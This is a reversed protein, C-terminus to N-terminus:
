AANIRALFSALLTISGFLVTVILIGAGFIKALLRTTTQLRTEPMLTNDHLLTEGGPPPKPNSM